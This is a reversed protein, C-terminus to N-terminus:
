PIVSPKKISDTVQREYAVSDQRITQVLKWTTENRHYVARAVSISPIQQRRTSRNGSRVTGEGRGVQQPLVQVQAQERGHEFQGADTFGQVVACPQPLDHVLVQYRASQGMMALQVIRDRVLSVM